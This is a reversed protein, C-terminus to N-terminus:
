NDTIRVYSFSMACLIWYVCDILVQWSLLSQMVPPYRFLCKNLYEMHRDHLDDLNHVRDQLDAEFERWTVDIIQNAIYNQIVKVFLQM